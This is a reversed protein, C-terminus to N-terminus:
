IMKIEKICEELLVRVVTFAVKEGLKESNESGSKLLM